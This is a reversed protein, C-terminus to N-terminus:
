GGMEGLVKLAPAALLVDKRDVGKILVAVRAQRDTKWLAVAATVALAVNPDNAARDLETAADRAAPGIEGLTFAAMRRVDVDGGRLAAILIPIGARSQPDIKWLTGAAAVRVEPKEDNLAGDLASVADKALGRFQGLILAANKRMRVRHDALAKVLAPVAKPGIRPLASWALLYGSYKEDDLPEILAPIAAEGVSVAASIVDNQIDGLRPTTPPLRALGRLLKPLVEHAQPGTDKVLQAAVWVVNPDADDAAKLLVPIAPGAKADIKWVARAAYLQVGLNRDVLAKKVVPLAGKAGPGYDGLIMAAWWRVDPRNTEDRLAAAVQPTARPGIAQLARIAATYDKTGLKKVWESAPVGQYLVGEAPEGALFCCLSCVILHNV